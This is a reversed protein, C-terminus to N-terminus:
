YKYLKNLSSKETILVIYRRIIPHYHIIFQFLNPLFRYHGLKSTRDRYKGPPVSSVMFVETLIAPRLASIKVRSRGFVFCYINNCILIGRYRLLSFLRTWMVIFCVNGCLLTVSINSHFIAISLVTTNSFAFPCSAGITNPPAVSQLRPTTNSFWYFHYTHEFLQQSHKVTTYQTESHL